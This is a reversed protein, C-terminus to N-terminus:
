ICKFYSVPLQKCQEFTTPIFAIAKTNVYTPDGCCKQSGSTKPTFDSFTVQGVLCAQYSCTFTKHCDEDSNCPGEGAMLKEYHSNISIDPNSNCGGEENCKRRSGIVLDLNSTRIHLLLLHNM